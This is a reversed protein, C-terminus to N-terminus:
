SLAQSIEQWPDVYLRGRVSSIEKLYVKILDRQGELKSIARGLDASDGPMFTIGHNAKEVIESIGPINSGIIFCGRSYGELLVNPVGEALSPIVLVDIDDLASSIEDRALSTMPRIDVKSVVSEYLSLLCPERKDIEGYLRFYKARKPNSQIYNLLVSLGKKWKWFGIAGYKLKHSKELRRQRALVSAGDNIKPSNNVVIGKGVASDYRAEIVDKLHASVYVILDSSEICEDLHNDEQLVNLIADNGRFNLVLKASSILRKLNLAFDSAFSVFHVIIIDINKNNLHRILGSKDKYVDCVDQDICPFLKYPYIDDVPVQIWIANCSEPLKSIFLRASCAVGGQDSPSVHTCLVMM